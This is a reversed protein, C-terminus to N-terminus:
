LLKELILILKMLLLISCPMKDNVYQIARERVFDKSDYKAMEIILSEDKIHSIADKRDHANMSYKAINIYDDM